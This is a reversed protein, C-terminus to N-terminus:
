FISLLTVESPVSHKKSGTSLRKKVQELKPTVFTDVVSKIFPASLAIVDKLASDDSM